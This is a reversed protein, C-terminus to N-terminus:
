SRFSHAYQDALLLFSLTNTDLNLASHQCLEGAGCLLLGEKRSEFRIYGSHWILAHSSHFYVNTLVCLQIVSETGGTISSRGFTCVFNM